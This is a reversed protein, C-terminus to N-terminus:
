KNENKFKKKEKINIEIKNLLKEMQKIKENVPISKDFGDFTMKQLNGLIDKQRKIAKKLKHHRISFTGLNPVNIKPHELESLNKRLKAYFFFIFDSVLDKHVEVEKAIDKYFNKYNKPNL